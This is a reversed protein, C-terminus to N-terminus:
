KSDYIKKIDSLDCNFIPDIALHRAKTSLCFHSIVVVAIVIGGGAISDDDSEDEDM